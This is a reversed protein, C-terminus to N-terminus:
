IDKKKEQFFEFVLIDSSLAVPRFITKIQKRRKMNRLAVRKGDCEGGCCVLGVVVLCVDSVSM